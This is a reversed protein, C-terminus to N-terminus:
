LAISYSYHALPKGKRDAFVLIFRHFIFDSNNKYVFESKWNKRFVFPKAFSPDMAQGADTLIVQGQPVGVLEIDGTERHELVAIGWAYGKVAEPSRNELSFRVHLTGDDNNAFSVHNLFFLSSHQHQKWFDLKERRLVGEPKQSETEAYAKEFVAEYRSQYRFLDDNREQLAEATDQYSGFIAGSFVIAGVAVTAFVCWLAALGVLKRPSVIMSRRKGRGAIFVLTVPEGTLVFRWTQKVASIM